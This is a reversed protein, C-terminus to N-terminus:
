ALLYHVGQYGDPVYSKNAKLENFYVLAVPWVDQPVSRLQNLLLAMQELDNGSEGNMVLGRIKKALSSWKAPFAELTSPPLLQEPDLDERRPVLAYGEAAMAAGGRKVRIVDPYWTAIHGSSQVVAQQAEDWRFPSYGIFPRESVLPSEAPFSLSFGRKDIELVAMTATIKRGSGPKIVRYDIRDGEKLTTFVVQPNKVAM